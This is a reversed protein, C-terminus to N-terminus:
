DEDAKDAGCVTCIGNADYQHPLQDIYDEEKQKCVSCVREKEGEQKCTAEKTVKWEGYKHALTDTYKMDVHSCKKCKRQKEGGDACTAKKTVKWAGYKHKKCVVTYPLTLKFTYTKGKKVSKSKKLVKYKGWIRKDKKSTCKKYVPYSLKGSKATQTWVIKFTLKATGLKVAKVKGKKKNVVKFIKSNSSKVSISKLKGFNGKEFMGKALGPVPYIVKNQNIEINNYSEMGTSIEQVHEGKGQCLEMSFDYFSAAEAKQTPVALVGAFMAMVLLASMVKRLMNKM